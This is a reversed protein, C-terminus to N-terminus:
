CRVKLFDDIRQATNKTIHYGSESMLQDSEYQDRLEKPLTYITERQWITMDGFYDKPDVLMHGEWGKLLSKWNRIPEGNICGGRDVYYYRIFREAEEDSFSLKRAKAAKIVEEKTPIGIAVTPCAMVVISTNDNENGNDNGNDNDDENDNDNENDGDLHLANADTQMANADMQKADAHSVSWRKKAATKNKECREQYAAMNADMVPKIADFAIKVRSSTVQPEMGEALDLIANLLETVLVPDEMLKFYSRWSSYFVFSKMETEM